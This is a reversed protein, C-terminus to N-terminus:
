TVVVPKTVKLPRALPISVRETRTFPEGALQVAHCPLQAIVLRANLGPRLRRNTWDKLPFPASVSRVVMSRQYLSLETILMPPANVLSATQSAADPGYTTVLWRVTPEPRVNVM